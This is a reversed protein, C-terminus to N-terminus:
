KSHHYEPKCKEYAFEREIVGNLKPTDPPTFKFRINNYRCVTEIAQNEDANDMTLNKVPLNKSNCVHYADEFM